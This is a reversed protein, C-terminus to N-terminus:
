ESGTTQQSRDVLHFLRDPIPQALEGDYMARLAVGIKTRITRNYFPINGTDYGDAMQLGQAGGRM